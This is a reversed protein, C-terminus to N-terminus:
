EDNGPAPNEAADPVGRPDPKVNVPQSYTQGDVTMRVTYDGPLLGVSGRGRRQQQPVADALPAAPSPNCADAPPTAAAGRRGGGGGGGGFGGVARVNLVARHAGATVAPPLSPQEWIAQVNLTETDVPRVPTDSALCARVVNSADVLELKLPGAPATKLWYYAIVGSPPNLEQPDEHPIPTGNMRGEHIAMSEGPVFLYAKAAEIKQGEAAIQRLSTMQDLVWFGRGMTAIDLDDGHVVIDRVSVVPM